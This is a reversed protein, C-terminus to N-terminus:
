WRAAGSRAARRFGAVAKEPPRKLADLRFRNTATCLKIATKGRTANTVGAGQCTRAHAERDEGKVAFRYEGGCTGFVSVKALLM